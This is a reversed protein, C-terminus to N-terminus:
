GALLQADEEGHRELAVEIASDVDADTIVIEEDDDSFLVARTQPALQRTRKSPAGVTVKRGYHPWESASWLVVLDNSPWYYRIVDYDSLYPLSNRAAIEQFAYARRVEISEDMLRERLRRIRAVSTDTAISEEEIDSWEPPLVKSSALFSLVQQRSLLREGTMAGSEYMSTAMTVYMQDVRAKIERGREDGESYDLLVASPLHQQLQTQFGTVFDLDGKRASREIGLSAEQARGFSGSQVPWFEDPSFRIVLAYLYMLLDIVERRNFGDPLNSLAVLKADIQEVGARALIGVGGFAKREMGELKTHRSDMAQTWMQPTINQLLLLGKPAVAGLKEKDHEYVAIMLEALERCIAVASMGIGAYEDLASPNDVVRLLDGHRWYQVKGGGPYYAYPFERIPFNKHNRTRMKLKTPDVAWIDSLPGLQEQGNVIRPEFDRGLELPSGFSAFYYSRALTSMLNRYGSGFPAGDKRNANDFLRKSRNVQIKGGTLTYPRNAILSVAQGIVGNLHPERKLFECHWRDFERCDASYPPPKDVSWRLVSGFDLGTMGTQSDGGFKPQASSSREVAELAARQQNPTLHAEPDAVAM